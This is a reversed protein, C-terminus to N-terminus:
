PVDRLLQEVRAKIQDRIERVSDEDQGAPDELEWDETLLFKAPCAEADVGCGMSIIKDARDAQDQTLLKPEHGVMSIGEEEMVKVAMPNLNKGGVTGASEATVDLAGLRAFHNVYAEAIQSRGANHVCVFLVRM